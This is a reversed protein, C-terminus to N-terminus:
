YKKSNIQKYLSKHSNSKKLVDKLVRSHVRNIEFKWLPAMLMKSSNEWRWYYQYGDTHTNLHRVLQKREKCEECEKWLKNTAAWDVPLNVREKGKKIIFKKPKYSNIYLGGLGFPLTLKDGTDLLHKALLTNYVMLVKVFTKYDVQIHPYKAIFAKYSSLSGTSYEHKPRGMYKNVRTM